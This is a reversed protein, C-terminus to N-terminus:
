STEAAETIITTDCSFPHRGNRRLLFSTSFVWSDMAETSGMVAMTRRSDMVMAGSSGPVSTRNRKPAMRSTPPIPSNVRPTSM